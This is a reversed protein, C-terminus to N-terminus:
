YSRNNSMTAIIQPKNAKEDMKRLSRGFPATQTQIKANQCVM